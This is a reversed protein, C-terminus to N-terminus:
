DGYREVIWLTLTAFRGPQQVKQAGDPGADM